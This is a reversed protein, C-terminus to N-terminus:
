RVVQRVILCLGVFIMGYFVMTTGIDLIILSSVVDIEHQTM